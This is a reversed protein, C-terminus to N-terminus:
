PSLNYRVGFRFQRGLTDYLLPNISTVYFNSGGTPAVVAPDKDFVDQVSVFTQINETVDYSAALDLYFAGDIHNYNITMNNATSPPCATSCVVYSNDYRGASVTRITATLSVPENNYTGSLLWRWHPPYTSSNNGAFESLKEGDNSTYDMVHTGLARFSLNGKWGDLIDALAMQYSAEIDFGSTSQSVFNHEEAIVQTIMGSTPNRIVSTCFSTLGAACRNVTDQAAVSSIAGSIDISYYDFSANFGPLWGPQFIIGAGTSDAVEPKLDVNGITVTQANASAFGMTPDQIPGTARTGATFLDALNPARIDRSRTARLKLDDIVTWTAGLKWTTVVGSTTYGTVRIAANLDLERAWFEDKALPVVTEAFGETVQYSGFTPKFNGAFYVNQASLPDATGSTSERRYEVGTALSIPGAWDSIPEGNLTVGASNQGVNQLLQATGEIYNIAAQNNVNTGFVDFPACGNSPATVTSACEIGGNPASVANIASMFNPTIATHLRVNNKSIGQQFYASWKWDTGIAKFDGDAGLAYRYMTRADMSTTRPLDTPIKGIPISTLGMAAMKAAVSQPIYPNGAQITLTPLYFSYCCPASSKGFGYGGLAWLEINDTVNYSVRTFVNNRTIEQDLGSDLSHDDAQWQGGQMLVGGLAVNGYNFQYPTGNPGFAVGKLPGANILGGSTAEALGVGSSVLNQPQGNGPAYAPNNWVKWGSKAWARPISFIGATYQMEGSAEVHGRGNAFSTGGAVSLAYNGDDGYTTLGGQATAKLGTFNKDLVFNVVGALADSGYAASAGGTVVDVRQVLATPLVNIDVAGDLSAEPVRMGDMLVLTRNPGLSRLNLESEGKNPSSGGGGSAHTSVGGGFEPLQTISDAINPQSEAQLQDLGLVTTPTPAQYGDRVVRSGSVVVQEVAPAGGDGASQALAPLALLPLVAASLMLRAVMDYRGASVQFALRGSKM